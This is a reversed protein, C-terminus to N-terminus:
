YQRAAPAAPRREDVILGLPQYFAPQLDSESRRSVGHMKPIAFRELHEDGDVRFDPWVPLRPTLLLKGPVDLPIDIAGSWFAFESQLELADHQAIVAELGDEEDFREEGGDDTKLREPPDNFRNPAVFSLRNLQM